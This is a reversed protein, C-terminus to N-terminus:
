YPKLFNHIDTLTIMSGWKSDESGAFVVAVLNGFSDVVPSGSNGPLTPVNSLYAKIQVACVPIVGMFLVIKNKPKDCNDNGIHDLVILEQEAILEGQSLTVPMLEPHGIAYVIEHLKEVDSVDLGTQPSNTQVLCLDTIPSEEIVQAPVLRESDDSEQVFVIGDKKVGCVHANTLIYTKGSPAKVFFGTGGHTATDNTIKVVRTGVKSRLWSYHIKPFSLVLTLLVVGLVVRTLVKM